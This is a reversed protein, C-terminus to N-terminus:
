GKQQNILEQLLNKVEAIEGRINAEMTTLQQTLANGQSDIAKGIELHGQKIDQRIAKLEEATDNALELVTAEITTARKELLEIRSEPRPQM